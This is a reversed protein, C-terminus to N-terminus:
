HLRPDMGALKRLGAADVIEVDKHRITVLGAGALTAFIRSVTEPKVALFSAIDLKRMRLRFRSASFGLDAHRAALDLLFLALRQEATLSAFALIWIRDRRIEGALAATLREQLEPIKLCAELVPPFALEWVECSELAVADCGHAPMGISEVGVLEGRMRFGTVQDPGAPNPQVIKLFGAHVLYLSRFPQGARYLVQRPALKRRVVHVHACLRDLALGGGARAMAPPLERRSGSPAVTELRLKRTDM